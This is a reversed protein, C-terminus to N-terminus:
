AARTWTCRRRPAILQGVLSNMLDIGVGVVRGDDAHIGELCAEEFLGTMVKGDDVARRSRCAGLEVRVLTCELMSHLMM